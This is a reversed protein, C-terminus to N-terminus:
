KKTEKFVVPTRHYRTSGWAPTGELEIVKGMRTKLRAEDAPIVQVMQLTVVNTIKPNDPDAGRFTQLGELVLVYASAKGEPAWNIDNLEEPIPFTVSNLVGRLKTKEGITIPDSAFLPAAGWLLYSIASLLYPPM